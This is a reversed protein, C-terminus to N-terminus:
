FQPPWKLERLKEKLTKVNIFKKVTEELFKDGVCERYGYKCALKKHQGWLQCIIPRVSYISCKHNLLFPCRLSLDFSIQNEKIYRSIIEWEEDLVFPDECCEDCGLPCVRKLINEM